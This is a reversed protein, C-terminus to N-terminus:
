ILSSPAGDSEVEVGYDGLAPAPGTPAPAAAAAAAEDDYGADIANAADAAAAASRLLSQASLVRTGDRWGGGFHVELPVLM